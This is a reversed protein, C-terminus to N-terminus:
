HDARPDWLRHVCPLDQKAYFVTSNFLSANGRRTAHQTVGLLSEMATNTRNYEDRLGGGGSSFLIGGSTVWAAIARTCEATIQPRALVYLVSYHMLRGLAPDTEILIDVALGAHKLAIYSTRLDADNSPAHLADETGEFTPWNGPEWRGNAIRYLV